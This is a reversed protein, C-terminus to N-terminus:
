FFADVNVRSAHCLENQSRASLSILFLCAQAIRPSFCWVVLVQPRRGMLFSLGAREAMALLARQNDQPASGLLRAMGNQDPGVRM